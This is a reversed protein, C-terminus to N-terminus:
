LPVFIWLLVSTLKRGRTIMRPILYKQTTLLTPNAAGSRAFTFSFKDLFGEKLANLAAKKQQEDLRGNKDTDFYKGIFYDKEGVVGDGDFDYSIDPINEQRRENNLETRTSGRARKKEGGRPLAGGRQPLLGGRGRGGGSGPRTRGSANSFRSLTQARTTPSGSTGPSSTAPTSTNKPPTRQPRAPTSISSARCPRPRPSIRQIMRRLIIGNPRPSALATPLRGRM